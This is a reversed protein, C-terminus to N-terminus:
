CQETWQFNDPNKLVKFFECCKDGSKPVFRGLAAVQGALRQMDKVSSPPQMELIAKIKEPNAEIGRRSVMCGLFKGSAAGFVSKQPNLKMNYFRLRDFTERLDELHNSAVKTKVIMDDVYVEMNRGLQPKFVETVCRQFTVGANKLGFPMVRYCYTGFSTIFSTHVQDKPNMKIQNYGSFADMFSLLEHGSTSDM